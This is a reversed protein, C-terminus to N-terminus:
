DFILIKDTTIFDVGMNIYKKAIKTDNVTWVNVILNKKKARKVNLKTLRKYSAGLNYNKKLASSIDKRKSALAQTQITNDLEQILLINNTFFTIFMFNDNSLKLHIQEILDALDEKSYNNKIEVVAILSNDSCVQLYDELSCIFINKDMAVGRSKSRALPLKKATEFPIEDILLSSDEFPDRDHTCVWVGDSTLWVDTEIAAFFGSEAAKEFAELTNQYYEASLGRHAIFQVKSLNVESNSCGLSLTSICLVVIILLIASKKM